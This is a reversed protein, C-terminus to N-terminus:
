EIQALYKSDVWGEFEETIVLRKELWTMDDVYVEEGNELTGITVMGKSFLKKYEVNVTEGNSVIKYNCKVNDALLIKSTVSHMYLEGNDAQAIVM